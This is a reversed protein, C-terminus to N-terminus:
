GIQRGRHAWQNVHRFFEQLPEGEISLDRIEVVPYTNWTRDFIGDSHISKECLIFVDHGIANAIGGELHLWGSTFKRHTEESEEESGEKEKLFYSHSRELGVILTGDCSEMTKRIRGIPDQKDYYSPRVRVLEIGEESLRKELLKLFMKQATTHPNITSLFLRALKKRQVRGDDKVDAQAVPSSIKKYWELIVGIAARVSEADQRLTTKKMGTHHVLRNRINRIEDSRKVIEDPISVREPPSNKCYNRIRQIKGNLDDHGAKGIDLKSILEELFAELFVAGWVGVSLYDHSAWANECHMLHEFSVESLCGQYDIM